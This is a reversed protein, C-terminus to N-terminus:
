FFFKVHLFCRFPMKGSVTEKGGSKVLQKSQCFYLWKSFKLHPKDGVGGKKKKGVVILCRFKKNKKLLVRRRWGFAVDTSVISCVLM